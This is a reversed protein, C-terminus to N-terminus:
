VEQLDGKRSGTHSSILDTLKRIRAGTATKIWGNHPRVSQFRLDLYVQEEILQKKTM